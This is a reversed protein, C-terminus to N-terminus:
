NQHMLVTAVVLLALLLIADQGILLVAAVPLFALLMVAPFLPYIRMLNSPWPRLCRYIFTLCALNFALFLLYAYPYPLLSFPVFFVAEFPPHTFPITVLHDRFSPKVLSRQLQSQFDFDYLQHLHGTRLTYGSAYLARFDCSGALLIIECSTILWLTM